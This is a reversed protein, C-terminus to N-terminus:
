ALSRGFDFMWSSLQHNAKVSRAKGSNAPVGTLGIAAALAPRSTQSFTEFAALLEEVSVVKHRALGSSVAARM